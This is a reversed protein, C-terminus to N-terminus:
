FIGDFPTDVFEVAFGQNAAIAKLLDIDFGVINGNEDKNEFPPYAAETGVKVTGLQAGAPASTATPAAAGGCGAIMAIATVLGLFCMWRKSM